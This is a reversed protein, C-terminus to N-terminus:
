SEKERGRNGGGKQKHITQTGPCRDWHSRWLEVGAPAEFEKFRRGDKSFYQGEPLPGVHAHMHLEDGVAEHTHHTKRDPHLVFAPQECPIRGGIPSQIWILQAPCFKCPRGSM